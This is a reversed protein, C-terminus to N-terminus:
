DALHQVAVVQALSRDVVADQLCGLLEREDFTSPAPSVVLRQLAPDQPSTGLAVLDVESPVRVQCVAWLSAAVAGDSQDLRKASVSVDIVLAAGPQTPAPRTILTFTLTFIVALMALVLVVIVAANRGRQTPGTRGFTDQPTQGTPHLGTRPLALGSLGRALEHEAVPAASIRSLREVVFAIGSLIVGAGLLIPVLVYSRDPDRALWAFPGAHQPRNSRLMAALSEIQERESSREIQRDVAAMRRLLVDTALFMEAALFFVGAILARNWEWRLLYVVLFMGSFFLVVLGLLVSLRHFMQGISM